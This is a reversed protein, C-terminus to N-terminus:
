WKATKTKLVVPIAFDTDTFTHPDDAGENDVRDTGISYLMGKKKNWAYPKGSCPDHTKYSDLEKLIDLVNRETSYNMHLEALIRTMDYYTRIRYSSVILQSVNPIAIRFLIKGVPNRLWRFTGARKEQAAYNEEVPDAKWQFPEQMDFAIM